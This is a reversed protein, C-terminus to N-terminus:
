RITPPLEIGDFDSGIGVYDVGVLNIIYEIHKIVFILLPSSPRTGRYRIKTFQRLLLTATQVALMIFRGRGHKKIFADEREFLLIL